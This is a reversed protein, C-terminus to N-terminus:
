YSVDYDDYKRSYVQRNGGIKLIFIIFQIYMNHSKENINANLWWSSWFLTGAVAVELLKERKFINNGFRVNNM